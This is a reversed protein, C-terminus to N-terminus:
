FQYPMETQLRSCKHFGYSSGGLDIMKYKVKKEGDKREQRWCNVAWLLKTEVKMNMAHATVSRRLSRLIGAKDRLNLDKDILENGRQVKELYGYWDNKFKVLSGCLLCAGLEAIQQMNARKTAENWLEDLMKDIRNIVQIPIFWDQQVVEGVHRHLGETFSAFWFTCTGVQSIWLRNKKYAGIVDM